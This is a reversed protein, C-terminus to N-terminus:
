SLCLGAQVGGPHGRRADLGGAASVTHDEVAFEFGADWALLREVVATLRQGKIQTHESFCRLIEQSFSYNTVFRM